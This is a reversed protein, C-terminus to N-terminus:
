GVPCVPVESPCVCQKLAHLFLTEMSEPGTSLGSKLFGGRPWGARAVRPLVERHVLTPPPTSYTHDTCWRCQCCPSICIGWGLWLLVVQTKILRAGPVCTFSQAGRYSRGGTSQM